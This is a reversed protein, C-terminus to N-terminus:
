IAHQQDCSKRGATGREGYTLLDNCGYTFHFDPKFVTLAPGENAV